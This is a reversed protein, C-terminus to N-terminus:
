GGLATLLAQLQGLQWTQYTPDNTPMTETVPVVPIGAKRALDQVHATVASTAQANYLLVRIRHNTVLDNMAQTDGASPENGDEIAQAFGPPTAITLGAAQLLYGPVRETYAVPAKPYTSKIQEIVQELPALSATFRKLNETFTAADAPDASALAREIASAVEPVRPVDYWLHPNADDATAGLIQEASLVVRNKNSTGALLKAVFDDYGVGNEIVIRAGAVSAANRADSEYQHPDASPDTIISTVSAHAGGIQSAINGWFNEAAVVKVGAGAGSKPSSSGCAVMAVAMLVAFANRETRVSNYSHNENENDLRGPM